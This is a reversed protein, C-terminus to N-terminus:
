INQQRWCLIIAKFVGLIGGWDFRLSELTFPASSDLRFPKTNWRTSCVSNPVHRLYCVYGSGFVFCFFGFGSVLQFSHTWPLNWAMSGGTLCARCQWLTAELGGHGWSFLLLSHVLTELWLLNQPFIIIQCKRPFFFAIVSHFLEESHGSVSCLIGAAKTLAVSSSLPLWPQGFSCM